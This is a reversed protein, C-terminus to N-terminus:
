KKEYIGSKGGEKYLLCINGITISKDTGKCRDYITLATVTAATM